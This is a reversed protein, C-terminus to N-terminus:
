SDTHRALRQGALQQLAALTAEAIGRRLGPQTAVAEVEARVWRRDLHLTATVRVTRAHRETHLHSIAARVRRRGTPAGDPPETQEFLEKPSGPPGPGTRGVRQHM